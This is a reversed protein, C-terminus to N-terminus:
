KKKGGMFVGAEEKRDEGENRGVTSSSAGISVSRVLEKGTEDSGRVMTSKAWFGVEEKEKRKRIWLERMREKVECSSEEHGGDCFGCKLVKKSVPRISKVQEFGFALRLAENLSDPKQPLIWDRFEERLGDIFIGKLLGDPLGHDPWQKLIWQLRLFYSRVSEEDGQNIMMLESRLQDVFEIKHYAHLFSSKIDEWTLSAEYPEINFDYWLAAEDELTIPFIRMMMDITSANNARCVKTFRSLHKVSCESTAGRFIPLPAINVYSTLQVGPQSSLTNVSRSAVNSFASTNLHVTQSVPDSALSSYRDMPANSESESVTHLAAADDYDGKRPREYEEEEENPEYLRRSASADSYDDNYEDEQPINRRHRYRSKTSLLASGSLEPSPSYQRLKPM